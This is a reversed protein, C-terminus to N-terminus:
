SFWAPLTLPLDFHPFLAETDLFSNVGSIRDGSLELVILAWAKRGGEPTPRYQAFAPWGYAATPILRSSRCGCGLGLMWTRVEAPGQLWMSYPPMCFTADQRLLATLGDVDYSEFAAVYRKLM